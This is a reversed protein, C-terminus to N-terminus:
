PRDGAQKCQFSICNRINDLASSGGNTALYGDLQRILTTWEPSSYVTKIGSADCRDADVLCSYLAKTMLHLMFFPSLGKQICIDCITLIERKIGDVDICPAFTQIAEEYYLNEHGKNTKLILTREGDRISDFLGGHHSAIINGAIDSVIPDGIAESIYRAGQLAHIVEGRVVKEGRLSRDLYDQFAKTFKGLDHSMGIASATQRCAFASAFAEAISTTNSIHDILNQNKRARYKV